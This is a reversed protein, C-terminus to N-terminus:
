RVISVLVKTGTANVTVAELTGDSDARWTVPAGSGGSVPALPRTGASVTVTANSSGINSLSIEKAGAPITLVTGNVTQIDVTYVKAASGTTTIAAVAPAHTGDGMDVWRVKADPPLVPTGYKDPM